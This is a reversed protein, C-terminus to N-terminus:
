MKKLGEADQGPVVSMLVLDKSKKGRPSPIQEDMMTTYRSVSLGADALEVRIPGILFILAM